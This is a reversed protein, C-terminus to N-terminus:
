DIGVWDVRIEDLHKRASGRRPVILEGLRCALPSTVRGHVFFDILRRNSLSPSLPFFFFSRQRRTGGCSSRPAPAGRTSAGSADDAAM